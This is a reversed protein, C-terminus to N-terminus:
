VYIEKRNHKRNTKNYVMLLFEAFFNHSVGWITNRVPPPLYAGKKKGWM